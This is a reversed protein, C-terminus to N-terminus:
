LFLYRTKVYEKKIKINLNKVYEKEEILNM